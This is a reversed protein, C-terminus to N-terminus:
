KKRAERPKKYEPLAALAASDLPQEPAIAVAAQSAVKKQEEIQKAKALQEQKQAEAIQEPSPQNFWNFGIVLAGILAFGIITNKDM